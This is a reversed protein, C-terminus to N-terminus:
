SLEAYISNLKCIWKFIIRTLEKTQDSIKHYTSNFM